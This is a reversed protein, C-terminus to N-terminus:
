QKSELSHQMAIGSAILHEVQEPTMGAGLLTERTHAGLRPPMVPEVHSKQMRIPHRTFRYTRGQEDQLDTFFDVSKLHPDAEIDGLKNIPAAPIENVECFNLWYATDQQSVIGGATEYLAAIHRTRMSMSAFRQDVALDPRNSGSFFSVWHRDTYPMMCVYGDRTQYPKRWPTLARPYGIEDSVGPLHHGYLHEVLIFGTMTEFMPIEVFQGEGTRERQFLAALIAHTAAMGCTKDAAVTPLYRPIGSQLTMLDAVGSLGQIVDDYAPQGAYAGGNGFGHLGAYVLRPNRALLTNHDLGLALMKQPRVSHMFVDAQDILTLLAAIAEPKKLDLCISKKNRNVGLFIAALGDEHKHGTYRTSDGEPSEVKIVEAGYDALTQSAYPGFLVSTMDIIRIGSLAATPTSAPQASMIKINQKRSFRSEKIPFGRM